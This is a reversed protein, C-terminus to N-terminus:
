SFQYKSYFFHGQNRGHMEIPFKRSKKKNGFIEVNARALGM